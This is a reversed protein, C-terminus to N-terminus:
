APNNKTGLFYYYHKIVNEKIIITRECNGMQRCEKIWELYKSRTIAGAKLGHAKLWLIYKDAIRGYRGAVKFHIGNDILYTEFKNM